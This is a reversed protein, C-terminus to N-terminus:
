ETEPEFTVPAEIEMEGTEKVEEKVENTVKKAKKKPAIPEVDIQQRKWEDLLKQEEPLLRFNPISSLKLLREIERNM